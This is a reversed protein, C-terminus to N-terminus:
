SCLINEIYIGRDIMVVLNSVYLEISGNIMGVCVVDNSPHFDIDFVEDRCDIESPAIVKSNM